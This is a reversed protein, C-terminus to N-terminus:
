LRGRARAGAGRAEPDRREGARCRAAGMARPSPAGRGSQRGSARSGASPHRTDPTRRGAGRRAVGPPAANNGRLLRGLRQQPPGSAAAASGRRAPAVGHSRGPLASERGTYRPAPTGTSGELQTVDGAGSEPPVRTGGTGLASPRKPGQPACFLEARPSSGGGEEPRQRVRVGGGRPSRGRGKM